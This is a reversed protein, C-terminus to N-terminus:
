NSEYVLWEGDHRRLTVTAENYIDDSQRQASYEVFVEDDSMFDVDKIRSLEWEDDGTAAVLTSDPHILDGKEEDTGAEVWAQVVDEVEGEDVTSTEEDDEGNGDSEDTDDNDGVDDDGEGNDNSGDDDGTDSQGDGEPDDSSCGALSVTALVALTGLFRRRPPCHSEPTSKRGATGEVRSDTM